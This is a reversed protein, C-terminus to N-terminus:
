AAEGDLMLNKIETHREKQPASGRRSAANVGGGPLRVM